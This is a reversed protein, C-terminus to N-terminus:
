PETQVEDLKGCVPVNETKCFDPRIRTTKWYELAGNEEVLQLFRPDARMAATQPTFHGAYTVSGQVPRAALALASDIDGLLSVASLTAEPPLAEEDTCTRARKAARERSVRDRAALGAAIDRWCQVMESSASAPPHGLLSAIDGVGGFLAARIRVGWSQPSLSALRRAREFQEEADAKRGALALAAAYGTRKPASLPDGAVAVSLHPFAKEILGV